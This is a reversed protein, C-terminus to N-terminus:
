NTQLIYEQSKYHRLLMNYIACENLRQKTRFMRNVHMHIISSLVSTFIPQESNHRITKFRESTSQSFAGLLELIHKDTTTHSLVEQLEKRHNRYKLGWQKEGLHTSDFFEQNYSQSAIKCFNIKDTLLFDCDNLISDILLCCTIWRNQDTNSCDRLFNCIFFSDYFFIREVNHINKIGYRELERSYTDIVVNSIMYTQKLQSLLPHLHILIKWLNEPKHSHFRLRIHYEPDAYRIFFFSDIWEDKLFEQIQPYINDILINELIKPGSYIKLFLWEGGPIFDREITTM